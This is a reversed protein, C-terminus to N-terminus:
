AGFSVEDVVAGYVSSGYLVLQHVSRVLACFLVNRFYVQPVCPLKM